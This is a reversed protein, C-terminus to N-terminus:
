RSVSRSIQLSIKTRQDLFRGCKAYRQVERDWTAANQGGQLVLHVVVLHPDADEDPSGPMRESLVFSEGVSQDASRCQDNRQFVNGCRVFRQSSIQQDVFQRQDKPRFAKGCRVLRKTRGQGLHRCEAGGQLVLHVVVLHPDVEEVLRGAGELPGDLVLGAEAEAQRARLARHQEVPRALVQMEAYVVHGVAPLLDALVPLHAPLVRHGVVGHPVALTGVQGEAELAM